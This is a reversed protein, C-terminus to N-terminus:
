VVAESPSSYEDQSVMLADGLRWTVVLMSCHCSNAGAVGGSGVSSRSFLIM